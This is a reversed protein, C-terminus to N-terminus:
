EQRTESMRFIAWVKGDKGIYKKLQMKGVVSIPRVTFDIAQGEAMKIMVCDYLAAGPGFCCEQNDRVLVFAKIGSQKFGPRMFGRIRVQRGDLKKLEATLMSEKFEGGKEIDFKLDDFSLDLIQNPDEGAEPEDRVPERIATERAADSTEPESSQCARTSVLGCFSVLGLVVAGCLGLMRGASRRHRVDRPIERDNM